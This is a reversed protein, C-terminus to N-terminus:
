PSTGVAKGARARLEADQDATLVKGMQASAAATLRQVTSRDTTTGQLAAKSSALSAVITTIRTTQETSLKLDERISAIALSGYGMDQVLLEKLRTVQAATLVKAVATLASEETTSASQLGQAITGLATLETATIALETQVSKMALLRITETSYSAEAAPATRNGGQM